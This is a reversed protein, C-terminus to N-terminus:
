GLHPADVEGRTKRTSRRKAGNHQAALKASRDDPKTAVLPQSSIYRDMSAHNILVRDGVKRAEILREAILRNATSRGIGYLDQIDTLRFWNTSTM